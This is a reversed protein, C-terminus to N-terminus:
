KELSAFISAPVSQFAVNEVEGDGIDDNKRSRKGDEVEAHETGAAVFKRKGNGDHTDETQGAKSERVMNVIDTRVHSYSAEVARQKRLMERFTDENGHAEEFQRFSNWYEPSVAPNAFQAGHAFIARARDLERLDRELHAFDM